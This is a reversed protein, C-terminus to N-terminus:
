EILRFYTLVEKISRYTKLDNLKAIPIWKVELIGEQLQPKLYQNSTTTMLFWKTEKLIVCDVLPRHNSVIDNLICKKQKYMHYTSFISSSIKLCKVNTEEFVERKACEDFLENSSMVHGKPLDWNNNKYIMLIEGKENKVVGGAAIRFEFYKKFFTFAFLPDNYLFCIDSFDAQGNLLDNACVALQPLTNRHLSVHKINQFLSKKDKDPL